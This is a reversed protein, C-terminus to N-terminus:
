ATLARKRWRSHGRSVGRGDRHCNGAVASGKRSAIASFTEGSLSMFKGQVVAEHVTEGSSCPKTMNHQSM